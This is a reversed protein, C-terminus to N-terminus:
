KDRIADLELPPLVAGRVVGMLISGRPAARLRQRATGAGAIAPLIARRHPVEAVLQVVEPAQNLRHAGLPHPAAEVFCGTPDTLM